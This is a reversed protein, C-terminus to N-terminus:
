TGDREPEGEAHDEVHVAAPAHVGRLRIVVAIVDVDVKLLDLDRTRNHDTDYSEAWRTYAHRVENM